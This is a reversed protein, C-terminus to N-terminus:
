ESGRGEGHYQPQDDIELSLHPGHKRAIGRRARRATTTGGKADKAVQRNLVFSCETRCMERAM